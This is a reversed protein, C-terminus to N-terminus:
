GRLAVVWPLSMSVASWAMYTALRPPFFRTTAASQRRAHRRPGSGPMGAPRVGRQDRALGALLSECVDHAVTRGADTGGTGRGAHPSNLFTLRPSSPQLSPKCEPLMLPLVRQRVRDGAPDLAAPSLFHRRHAELSSKLLNRVVPRTLRRGLVYEPEEAM